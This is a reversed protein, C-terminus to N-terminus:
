NKILKSSFTIGDILVTVLYTGKALGSISIENIKSNVKFSKIKKGSIELVTLEADQFHDSLFLVNFTEEFPNPFIKFISKTTLASSTKSISAAIITETEEKKAATSLDVCPVIEAVFNSGAEATFGPLLVVAGSSQYRVNTNAGVTNNAELLNSAYFDLTAPQSIDNSVFLNGITQYSNGVGVAYWADITSIVQPSCNGFLDQAAQITFKRADAYNTNATMYVTEARFVIKAANSIGISTVNFNNNLDNTGSGGVSLLYFWHNMVGSNIHPDNNLAGWYTGYYTDPQPWYGANPNAMSRAFNPSVLTIDEGILWTQKNTTAWNEVCAGWIDSLSENIAGQEGNNYIVGATNECLGHGIEHAIFDLSTFADFTAGGDGYTMYSGNWFANEYNSSYHVYNKIAGGNGDFSNRNHNNKWYDYTMMAGWHADLAANDKNTNNYEASTWNNNNDTFDIASGYNTGKQLNYTEIGNGRGSDYDRLRYQSGNLITSITRQGSYRTDATGNINHIREQKGVVKGSVADIYVYNRSLPKSAYIDFKYALYITSDARANPCYVVLQGHPKPFLLETSKNQPLTNFAKDDDWIYEEAKIHQLAVSFAQRESFTSQLTHENILPLYEGNIYRLDNGKYHLKIASNEIPFHKYYQQYTYHVEGNEESITKEPLLKFSFNDNIGLLTTLDKSLSEQRLTLPFGDSNFNITKFQAWVLSPILIILFTLCKM